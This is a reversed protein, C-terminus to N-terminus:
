EYTKKQRAASALQCRAIQMQKRFSSKAIRGRIALVLVINSFNKKWQKVHSRQRNTQGIFIQFILKLGQLNMIFTRLHFRNQCASFMMTFEM